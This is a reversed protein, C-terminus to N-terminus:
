RTARGSASRACCADAAREHRQRDGPLADRRHARRVRARVREGTAPAAAGSAAASWARLAQEERTDAVPWGPFADSRVPTAASCAPQGASGVGRLAAARRRRCRRARARRRWPGMFERRDGLTSRWRTQRPRTSHLTASSGAASSRDIKM